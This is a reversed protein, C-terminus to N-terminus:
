VAQLEVIVRLLAERESPSLTFWDAPRESALRDRVNSLNRYRQFFPEAHSRILDVVEIEVKKLENLDSVCWELFRRDPTLLHLPAGVTAFLEQDDDRAMVAEVQEFRVGVGVSFCFRDGSVRGGFFILDMVDTAERAYVMRKREVFGLSRLADGFVDAIARRGENM